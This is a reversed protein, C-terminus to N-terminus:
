TAAGLRYGHGPASHVVGPEGLKRRLTHVVIKVAGRSPEDSDYWVDDLLAETSVYGGDAGLLRELVAFEKRTLHLPRGDREAVRRVSDLRVGGCEWVVPAAPRGRRLLARIRALLEVYAFPKALYDDAGLDLGRVRDDLTGAATLMLIRVPHGATVLARCVADGSLVPLDRDLVVVDFEDAGLRVLAAAGDYVAEVAYGEAALGESLSAALNRDDEVLLLRM